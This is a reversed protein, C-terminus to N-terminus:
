CAVLRNFTPLIRPCRDAFPNTKHENWIIIAISKKPMLRKQKLLFFRMYQKYGNCFLNRFITSVPRSRDQKLDNVIGKNDM